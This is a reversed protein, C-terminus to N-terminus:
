DICVSVVNDKVEVFGGDANFEHVGESDTCSILGRDLASIIPAHNELVTFPSVLGPLTVSTVEGEYLLQQPSIVRLKLM